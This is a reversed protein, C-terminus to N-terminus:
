KETQDAGNQGSDVDLGEVHLRQTGETHETGEPQHRVHGTQLNHEVGDEAGHDWQQVNGHKHEKHDENICDDPQLQETPLQM